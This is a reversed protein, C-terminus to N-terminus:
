MPGVEHSGPINAKLIKLLYENDWGASKRKIKKSIKRSTENKVMALAMRRLAAFNDPGYGKRIRSRDEHFTVDLEWHQNNEISWHQRICRLVAIVIIDALV